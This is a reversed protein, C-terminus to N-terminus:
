KSSTGRSSGGAMHSLVSAVRLFPRGACPKQVLQHQDVEVGHPDVHLISGRKHERLVGAGCSTLYLKSNWKRTAFLEVSFRWAEGQLKVDDLEKRAEISEREKM